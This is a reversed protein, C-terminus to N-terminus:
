DCFLSQALEPQKESGGAFVLWVCAPQQKHLISRVANGSPAQLM